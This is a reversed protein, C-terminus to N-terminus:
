KTNQIIINLISDLTNSSKYSDMATTYSESNKNLDSIEKILKTTTLDEEFIVKSFGKESFEKANDIQDGRSAKKSLPIIIHPKKIALLEFLANSGGRTVVLDAYSLLHAMEDKVYEFQKYNTYTLSDDSNGKGTLHIVNYNKLLSKQLLERLTENLKKAGLSGGMLMVVPKKTPFNCLEEGKDYIGKTIEERIPAGTYVVEAKKIFNKTNEFSTCVVKSFPIAIKNALGPTYDSEHIVIPVNQKKGALIVPVVVYGGKSFIIDPKIKKIIKNAELIGKSVKFVDKVNEFNLERRLKGSSIGYYKINLSSDMSTILNKEVGEKSGIYHIEYGKEILKPILAINPTVHGATGGGTLVIKKM